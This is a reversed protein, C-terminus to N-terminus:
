LIKVCNHLFRRFIGGTKRDKLRNLLKKSDIKAKFNGYQELEDDAIGAKAAITKINDLRTNRAIEIDEM